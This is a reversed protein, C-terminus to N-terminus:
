GTLMWHLTSKFNTNNPQINLTRLKHTSGCLAQIENKRVLDPNVKVLLKKGSLEELFAIVERVSITTGTCINFIEGPLPSSALTLYHNAVDRVDSFDRRVDINGLEITPARKRFHNVIKPILFRKDQGIGTYNFPRTIMIGMRDMFTKGICEMALKSVAYDNIPNVASDESLVELNSDGYVNASSALITCEPPRKARSLAELLYRTGIVNVQYFLAPDSEAVFSIGALHIVVDPRAVECIPSLTEPRLLDIQLYKQKDPLAAIGAGWVEWGARSFADCIYQGTFGGIGTVLVRRNV